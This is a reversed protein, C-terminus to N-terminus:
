TPHITVLIRDISRGDSSMPWVLRDHIHDELRFEYFLSEQMVVREGMM